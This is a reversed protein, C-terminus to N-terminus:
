REPVAPGLRQPDVKGVSAANRSARIEEGGACLAADAEHQQRPQHEVSSNSAGLCRLSPKPATRVSNKTVSPRDRGGGGGGEGKGSMSAGVPTHVTDGEVSQKRQVCLSSSAGLSSYLPAESMGVAATTAAEAQPKTDVNAYLEQQQPAVREPLSPKRQSNSKAVVHQLVNYTTEEERDERVSPRRPTIKKAVRTSPITDYLTSLPVNASATDGDYAAGTYTRPLVQNEPETLVHYVGGPLTNLTESRQPNECIAAYVATEPPPCGNQGNAAEDSTSTIRDHDLAVTEYARETRTADNQRRMRRKFRHRQHCLCVVTICLLFLLALIVSGMVTALLLELSLAPKSTAEQSITSTLDAFNISHSATSRKETVNLWTLVHM